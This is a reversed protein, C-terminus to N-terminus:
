TQEHQAIRRRIRREELITAAFRIPHCIGLVFCWIWALVAGPFAASITVGFVLWATTSLVLGTREIKWGVMLEDSDDLLGRIIGVGGALLLAALIFLLVEPLRQISSSVRLSLTAAVIIVLGAVIQLLSIGISYPHALLHDMNSPPRRDTTYGHLPM